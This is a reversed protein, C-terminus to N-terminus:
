IFAAKTFSIVYSIWVNSRYHMYFLFLVFGEIRFGPIRSLEVICECRNENEQPDEQGATRQDTGAATDSCRKQTEPREKRPLWPDTNASHHSCGTQVYVGYPAASQASKGAASCIRAQALLSFLFM